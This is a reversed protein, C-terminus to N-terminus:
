EKGIIYDKGKDIFAEVYNPLEKTAIYKDFHDQVQADSWGFGMETRAIKFLEIPEKGTKKCLLEFLNPKPEDPKVRLRDWLGKGTLAKLYRDWFWFIAVMTFIDLIANIM